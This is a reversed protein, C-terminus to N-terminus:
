KLNGKTQGLFNCILFQPCVPFQQKGDVVVVVVVVNRNNERRWWSWGWMGITKVGGITKRGCLGFLSVEPWFLWILGLICIVLPFAGVSSQKTAIVVSFNTISM